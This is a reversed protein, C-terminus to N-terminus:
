KAEEKRSKIVARLEGAYEELFDEATKTFSAYAGDDRFAFVASMNGFYRDIIQVRLHLKKEDLWALSVADNYMFGDTTRVGGRENSYGLQPFKGFVNHNVGFPIVKDGQANTYRFEGSKDDNFVFSFREIGMPNESCVYEKGSLNKRFSSDPLGKVSILELREGIKDLKNQSKQNEPLPTDSIKDVIMDKLGVMMLKRIFDTGQNDSICAFLLDKEPYCVTIQDGMGVFAFAGSEGRWIQYGYGFRFPHYVADQKNDVRKSTAEKLYDAGMLRKGEYVGYNMVLRGFSAIDRLTCVMASDGWSDGNPTKLVTATNFTGMKSFLKDYLYDFLSKGSLKEVLACLVQSGPSDYEWLTGPARTAAMSSFYLHTRDPDGSNFWYRSKGCTTMTLMERITQIELEWPLERDIKEPFYAAIKDDLSLKGEELLLGIAISVFSKTQSYMRHCFDKDFPAWYVEAFIKDGRMMLFGHTAAGHRELLSIFDAVAESSIGAAEPSIKEFM